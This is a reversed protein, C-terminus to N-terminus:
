NDKSITPLSNIDRLLDELNHVTEITIGGYFSQPNVFINYSDLKRQILDIVQQKSLYEEM